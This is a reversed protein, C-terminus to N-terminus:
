NPTILWYGYVQNRCNKPYIVRTIKSFKSIARTKSLGNWFKWFHVPCNIVFRGRLCTIILVLKLPVELQWNLNSKCNWLCIHPGALCRLFSLPKLQLSASINSLTRFVGGFKIYKTVRFCFFGLTCKILFMKSLFHIFFHYFFEDSSFLLNFKLIFQVKALDLRCLRKLINQFSFSESTTEIITREIFDSVILDNVLVASM